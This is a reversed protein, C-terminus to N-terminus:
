EDVDSSTNLPSKREQVFPLLVKEREPCCGRIPKSGALKKM